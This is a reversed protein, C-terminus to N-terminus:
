PVSGPSLLAPSEGHTCQKGTEGHKNGKAGGGRVRGPCCCTASAGPVMAAVSGFVLQVIDAGYGVLCATGTCEELSGAWVHASISLGGIVV